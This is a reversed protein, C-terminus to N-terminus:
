LRKYLETGVVGEAVSVVTVDVPLFEWTNTVPVVGAGYQKEKLKNGELTFISTVKSGDFRQFEFEQGLEFAAETNKLATLRKFTWRGGAETIEVTPKSKEALNRQIM